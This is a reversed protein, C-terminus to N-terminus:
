GITAGWINGSYRVFIGGKGAPISIATNTALNSIQGGVEPYVLLAVASNNHVTVMAGALHAFLKVGQGASVSSVLLYNTSSLATATAQTTGAAGVGTVNSQLVRGSTFSINGVMTLDNVNQIFNGGGGGGVHLNVVDSTTPTGVYAVGATNFGRVVINNSGDSNTFDIVGLAQGSSIIDLFCASANDGAVEGLIIGKCSPRGSGPDLILCGDMTTPQKIIVNVGNWAAYIRCASYVSNQANAYVNASYAGEFHCSIFENGGSSDNIAYRHRNATTGRSWVHCALFRCNSNGECLIGDYTNNALQGADIVIVSIATTDHPGKNWWGHKGCTDIKVNSIYGEMGYTDGGDYWETRMGYEPANKIMFNLLYPEQGYVALCSGLTNNARNGDLELNTIGYHTLGGSSNTGWLTSSQYGEILNDNTGNMLKISSTRGEGVLMINNYITLKGSIYTGSPFYVIGGGAVNAANIAAQIATTNDGVGPLAGYGIVNFIQTVTEAKLADIASQPSAAAAILDGLDKMAIEMVSAM